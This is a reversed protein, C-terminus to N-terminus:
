DFFVFESFYLKQIKDLVLFENFQSLLEKQIKIEGKKQLQEKTFQTFYKEIISKFKTQKSILEEYFEFDNTPYPFYVSVVIPIPFDDKTSTRVKGLASFYSFEDNKSTKSQVTDINQEINKGNPKAIIAVLTVILIILIVACIAFFLVQNLSFKFTKSYNQINDENKM